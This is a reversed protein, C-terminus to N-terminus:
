AVIQVKSELRALRELIQARMRDEMRHLAEMLRKHNGDIREEFSFEIKSEGGDFPGLRKEVADLRAQISRTEADSFDEFPQRGEEILGM